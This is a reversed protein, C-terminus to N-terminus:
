QKAAKLAAIAHVYLDAVASKVFDLGVGLVGLLPATGILCSIGCLAWVVLWLSHHSRFYAICFAILFIFALTTGTVTTGAVQM